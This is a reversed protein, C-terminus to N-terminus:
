PALPLVHACIDIMGVIGRPLVLSGLLKRSRGRRVLTRLLALVTSVDPPSDQDGPTRDQSAGARDDTSRDQAAAPLGRLEIQFVAIVQRRRM